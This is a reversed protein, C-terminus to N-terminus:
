RKRKKSKSTSEFEKFSIKSFLFVYLIEVIGFTQVVLLIVFWVSHNNRASKWLALGKWFLTWAFVIALLWLPIGFSAALTALTDAM